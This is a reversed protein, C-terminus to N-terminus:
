LENKKEEGFLSGLEEESRTAIVLPCEEEGRWWKHELVNERIKRGGWWNGYMLKNEASRIWSAIKNDGKNDEGTCLPLTHVTLMGHLNGFVVDTLLRDGVMCLESPEKVNPFHLM